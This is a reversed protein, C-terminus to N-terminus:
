QPKTLYPTLEQLNSPKAYEGVIKRLGPLLIDTQNLASLLTRPTQLHKLPEAVAPPTKPSVFWQSVKQILSPEPLHKILTQTEIAKLPISKEIYVSLLLGAIVHQQRNLTMKLPSIKPGGGTFTAKADLLARVTEERGRYAAHYLPTAKNFDKQDLLTPKLHLLLRIIQTQGNRAATLM